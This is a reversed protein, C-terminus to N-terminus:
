AAEQEKCKKFYVEALQTNSARRRSITPPAETDVMEQSDTKVEAETTSSEDPDIEIEYNEQVNSTHSVTIAETSNKHTYQTGVPTCGTTSPPEGCRICSEDLYGFSPWKDLFINFTVLHVTGESIRQFKTHKPIMMPHCTNPSPNEREEKNCAEITKSCRACTSSNFTIEAGENAVQNERIKQLVRECSDFLSLFTLPISLTEKEDLVKGLAKEFSHKTTKMDESSFLDVTKTFNRYVNHNHTAAVVMNEFISRGFYKQMLQMEMNLIQNDRILAGTEPLFYVVRDFKFGLATKIHFIKRVLSLDNDYMSFFCGEDSGHFGPVDLVRVKTTDNCLLECKDTNRSKEKRQLNIEEHPDDMVRWRILNTLRQSVQEMEDLEDSLYWMSVDTCHSSSRTIKVTSEQQKRKTGPSSILDAIIIKDATTTKGMGTKGVLMIDFYDKYDQPPCPSPAPSDSM